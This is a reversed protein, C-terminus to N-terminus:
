RGAGPLDAPTAVIKDAAWSVIPLEVGAVKVTGQTDGFIGYLTLKTPGHLPSEGLRETVEMRMISPRLAPPHVSRSVIRTGNYASM